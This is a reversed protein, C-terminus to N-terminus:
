PAHGAVWNTRVQNSIDRKGILAFGAWYFPHAYRKDKLMDLQAQRLAEATSLGNRLKLHFQVMLRATSEDEVSWHSAVMSPCGAAFFAWALGVMGEGRRVRGRASDCSSLVVLDAHLRLRMIEWAELLGDEGGDPVRALLIQSYMPNVNDVFSHSAIHLIRFNPAEAKFREETAQAGTYVVAHEGYIGALERIQVEAQPLPCFEGERDPQNTRTAPGISIAPNGFALLAESHSPDKAENSKSESMTRLATLSPAYSLAFDEVLFHGPSSQLAQFPLNWLPGDPIIILDTKGSLQSKAPGLLLGFLDTAAGAYDLSRDALLRRFHDCRAALDNEKASITYVRLDPTQQGNRDATLVFLYTAKESTAFELLATREDHLLGACDSLAIPRLSATQIQLQPHAAYLDTQFSEFALRAEQLRQKVQVFRATDPSRDAEERLIAVNSSDLESSLKRERGIEATTLTVPAIASGTKLVDMLTRAKAREAFDFAGTFDKQEVMLDVMGYYPAIRTELFRQRDQASGAARGRIDEITDIAEAFEQRAQNLNGLALDSNAAATLGLALIEPSGIEKAVSISRSEAAAAKKFDGISNYTDAIDALDGCVAKKAGIQEDIKLSKAFYDLAIAYAGQDRKLRGILNLTDAVEDKRGIRESIRLSRECYGLAERYHKQSARVEGITILTFAIGENDNIERRLKLSEVHYRLAQDDDGLSERVVGINNLASAIKEKAGIERAIQLGREFFNLAQLYNGREYEILGLHGSTSASLPKDGAENALKNAQKLFDVAADYE